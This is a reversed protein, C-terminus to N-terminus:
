LNIKLVFNIEIGDLPAYIDKFVPNELSGKYLQGFRIQKVGLINEANAVLTFHGFTKQAMLGILTYPKSQTGDNLYQIDIYDLEVGCRFNEELEYVGSLFFKNKPTLKLFPQLLDYKKKVDLHAYGILFELNDSALRINTELGKAKVPLSANIFYYKGIALSDPEPIVPHNITTFYFTEDFSINWEDSLHSKYLLDANWSGAIEPIVNNALPYVHQFDDQESTSNLTTPINYGRGYGARLSLHKTVKYLLSFRPLLYVGYRNHKDMHLGTQLIWSSDLKWTDQIFGSITSYNYGLGDASLADEKFKDTYFNLGGVTKHFQWSQLFSAESCTNWEIGHFNFSPLSLKRSFYSISNKFTFIQDNHLHKEFLLTSYKRSSNSKEIYPHTSDPQNNVAFLDGGKRNEFSGNLGVSLKTNDDFYYFLKPSFSVQRLYPLDTFVDDDIDKPQQSSGSAMFTLGFHNNRHSYFANIDSGGKLTQNLMMTFSPKGTQPTKSILNIVGAIANGGYLDSSAGKIIEVQQLDLPPISLLSLGNSLSGYLLFGDKLLQTYKGDLGLIRFTMNGSVASTQQTQIGPNEGLLKSINGPHINLEENVEEQGLIEARQPEDTIRNNSRTSIVTVQQLAREEPKLLVTITTDTYSVRLKLQLEEKEYGTESFEVDFTGAPLNMFFIYGSDNTVKVIKLKPISISVFALPKTTEADITKFNVTSQATAFLFIHFSFFLLGVKVLLSKHYKPFLSM